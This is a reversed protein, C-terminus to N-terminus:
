GVETFVPFSPPPLAKGAKPKPRKATGRGCAAKWVKSMVSLWAEAPPTSEGQNSEWQSFTSRAVEVKDKNFKGYEVFKSWAM